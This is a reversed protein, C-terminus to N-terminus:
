SRGRFIRKIRGKYDVFIYLIESDSGFPANIIECYNTIKFSPFTYDGYRAIEGPAGIQKGKGIIAHAEEISMGVKIPINRQDYYNYLTAIATFILILILYNIIRVKFLKGLLFIPLFSIILIVMLPLNILGFLFLGPTVFGLWFGFCISPIFMLLKIILM